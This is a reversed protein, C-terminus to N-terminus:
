PITNKSFITYQRRDSPSPPTLPRRDRIEEFDAITRTSSTGLQAVNHLADLECKRSIWGKLINGKVINLERLYRREQAKLFRETPEENQDKWDKMDTGHEKFLKELKQELFPVNMETTPIRGNCKASLMGSLDKWFNKKPLAAGNCLENIYACLAQHCLITECIDDDAYVPKPAESSADYHKCMNAAQQKFQEFPMDMLKLLEQLIARSEKAVNQARAFLRPLKAAFQYIQDDCIEM